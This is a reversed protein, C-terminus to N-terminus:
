RKHIRYGEKGDLIDYGKTRIKERLEDSKEFDKEQRAQERQEAIEIIEQPIEETDLLKLGLVEDFKELLTRRDAQEDRVLNWVVALAKPMNLDDNIAEMFEQEYQKAEGDDEPLEEIINMLRKRSAQATELADWSFSLQQRYHATLCLYRYDLPHFGKEKLTALTLFNEGSKAMKGKDIVLFEGHLWYKVWPKEGYATEAQAIENTHHVQIHDIGGTHIDFQKGLYKSSMASCEIHWGPFGVGWPSKWEMQRKSGRPSLKWLAFDTKNKKDGMEVRKGAELQALDLRALKGYDDLKSTDFYIGDMTKYTCGKKEIAQVQEIQEQIHDTAKCWVDPDEINLDHIDNIFAETYYKALEWVSKGERKAGKEMKDEGEDADSTLHGVDTINMVHLVNFGNYRLIRKLIDAFVYSRLNGIHAYNYVTPGCSYFGVKPPNIPTFVEKKRTLTNYVELAM